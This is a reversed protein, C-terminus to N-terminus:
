CVVTAVADEASRQFYLLTAPSVTKTNKNIASLEKEASDRRRRSPTKNRGKLHRSKLHLKQKLIFILLGVFFLLSFGKITTKM